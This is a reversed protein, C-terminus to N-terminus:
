AAPDREAFGRCDVGGGWALATGSEGRADYNTGGYCAGAVRARRVDEWAVGSHLCAGLGLTLLPLTLVVFLVLSFGVAEARGVGYMSLALVTALQHTGMNAPALPIMTGLRVVVMVVAAATLGLGLHAARGVSWIALTQGALLGGSWVVARPNLLGVSVGRFLRVRTRGLGVAAVGLVGMVM